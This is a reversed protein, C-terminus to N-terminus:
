TTSPIVEIPVATVFALAVLVGLLEGVTVTVVAEPRVTREKRKVLLAGV